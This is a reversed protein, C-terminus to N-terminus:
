THLYSLDTVIGRSHLENRKTHSVNWCGNLRLVQMKPLAFLLDVGADTIKDCCDLALFEVKSMGVLKALGADTIQSCHALALHKLEIMHSLQGLGKDSIKTLTLDLQKMKTMKSLHAVGQDTIKKCGYLELMEMSTLNALHELGADTIKSCDGFYLRKMATMGSLHKLGEDTLQTCDYLFLETIKAGNEPLKSILTALDDDRLNKTDLITLESVADWHRFTLAEHRLDAAQNIKLNKFASVGHKAFAKNTFRATCLNDQDLKSLVLATIEPPLDNFRLPTYPIEAEHTQNRRPLAQLNTPAQQRSAWNQAQTTAGHAKKPQADEASGERQSTLPKSITRKGISNGM